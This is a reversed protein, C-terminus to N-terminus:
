RAHYVMSGTTSIGCVRLCRTHRPNAHHFSLAIWRGIGSQQKRGPVLKAHQAFAGNQCATVALGLSMTATKDHRRTDQEKGGGLTMKASHYM